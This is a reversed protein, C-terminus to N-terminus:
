VSAEPWWRSVDEAAVEGPMRQRVLRTDSFVYSEVRPWM